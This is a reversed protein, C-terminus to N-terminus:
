HGTLARSMKSLSPLGQSIKEFTAKQVADHVEKLGKGGALLLCAILAATEIIEKM